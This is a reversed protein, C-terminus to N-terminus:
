CISVVLEDDSSFKPGRHASAATVKLHGLGSCDRDDDRDGAPGGAGELLDLLAEVGGLMLQPSTRYRGAGQQLPKMVNSPRVVDRLLWPSM